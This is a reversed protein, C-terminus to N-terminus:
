LPLNNFYKFYKFNRKEGPYKEISYISEKVDFLLKKIKIEM